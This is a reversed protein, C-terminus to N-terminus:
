LFWAIFYPHATEAFLFWVSTPKWYLVLVGIYASKDMSVLSFYRFSCIYRELHCLLLIDVTFFIPLQFFSLQSTILNYKYNVLKLQLLFLLLLSFMCLYPSLWIHINHVLMYMAHTPTSTFSQYSYSGGVWGVVNQFSM